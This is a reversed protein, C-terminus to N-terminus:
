GSKSPPKHSYVNAVVQANGDGRERDTPTLREVTTCGRGYKRADRRLENDTRFCPLQSNQAALGGLVAFRLSRETNKDPGIVEDKVVFCFDLAEQKLKPMLRDVNETSLDDTEGFLLLEAKRDCQTLVVITPAQALLYPSTM